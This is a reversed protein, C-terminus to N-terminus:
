ALNPFPIFYSVAVGDFFAYVAVIPLLKGVLDIVERFCFLVHLTCIVQYLTWFVLQCAANKLRM